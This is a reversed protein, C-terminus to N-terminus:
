RGGGFRRPGLRLEFAGRREIRGDIEVELTPDAGTGGFYVMTTGGDARRDRRTDVAALQRQRIERELDGIANGAPADYMNPTLSARAVRGPREETVTVAGIKKTKPASM